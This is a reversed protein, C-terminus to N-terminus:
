AAPALDLFGIVCEIRGDELEVVDAGIAVPEGGGAPVLAWRFRAVGHHADVGDLLRFEHGPVQAQVAGILDAIEQHGSVSALPDTYSGGAAFLEGVAARRLAPDAENWAVLYRDVLTAADM